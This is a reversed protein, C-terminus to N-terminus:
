IDLFDNLLIGVCNGKYSWTPMYQYRDSDFECDNTLYM